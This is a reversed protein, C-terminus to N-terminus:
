YNPALNCTLTIMGVMIKLSKIGKGILLIYIKLISNDIEIVKHTFFLQCPLFVVNNKEIHDHNTITSTINLMKENNAHIDQIRQSM